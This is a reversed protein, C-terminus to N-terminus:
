WHGTSVWTFCPRSLHTKANSIQGAKEMLLLTSYKFKLEHEGHAYNCREGRHFVTPNECLTLEPVHDIGNSIMTNKKHTLSVM